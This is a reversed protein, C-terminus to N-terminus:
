LLKKMAISLQDPCSSPKSGCRVGELRGIADGLKMGVLLRCMGQNNGNCGGVIDINTILGDEASVHMERSCVGQPIYTINM